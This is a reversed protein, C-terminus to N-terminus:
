LWNLFTLNMSALQGGPMNSVTVKKPQSSGDTAVIYLSADSQQRYKFAVQTGDHNGVPGEVTATNTKPLLPVPNASKVCGTSTDKIADELNIQTGTGGVYGTGSAEVMKNPGAWHPQQCAKIPIEVTGDYNLYAFSRIGHLVKEANGTSGAPLKFFDNDSTQYYFNGGGDFGIATFNQPAGGFAGPNAHSTVDTFNGGTDIWGADQHGNVQHTVAYRKFDPSLYIQGTSACNCQFSAIKSYNGSNPDLLGYKRQTGDAIEVLIGSHAAGGSPSGGPGSAGPGSAGPGSSAPGSPGASPGSTGGGTLVFKYALVGAVALV